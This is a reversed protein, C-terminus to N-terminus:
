GPAGDTTTPSLTTTTTTPSWSETADPTETLITAPPPTAPPATRNTALAVSLTIVTAVAVSGAIGAGWRALKIRRSRRAIGDASFGLAPGQQEAVEALLARMQEDDRDM